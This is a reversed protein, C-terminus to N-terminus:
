LWYYGQSLQYHDPARGEPCKIDGSGLEKQWIPSHNDTRLGGYAQDTINKLYPLNEKQLM